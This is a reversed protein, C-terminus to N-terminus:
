ADAGPVGSGTTSTPDPSLPNGSDECWHVTGRTIWFHCRCANLQHVSPTISPRGLWDLKVAWRPRRAPNLSLMLKEGCNGPCRLCAWKELKGDKVIVLTGRRLVDPSPHCDMVEGVLEPRPIFRLMTLCRRALATWM